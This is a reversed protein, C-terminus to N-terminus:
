QLEVLEVTITLTGTAIPTEGETEYSYNEVYGFVNEFQGYWSPDELLETKVAYIIDDLVDASNESQAVTVAIEIDLVKVFGPNVHDRGESQAAATYVAIAPLNAVLNPIVRTNFVKTGALTTGTLRTVVSQRITKNNIV